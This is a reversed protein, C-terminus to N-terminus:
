TMPRFKKRSFKQDRSGILKPCSFSIADPGFRAREGRTNKQPELGIFWLRFKYFNSDRKYSNSSKRSLFFFFFSNYRKCLNFNISTTKLRHTPEIVVAYVFWLCVKKPEKDMQRKPHIMDPSGQNVNSMFSFSVSHASRSLHHAHCSCWSVYSRPQDLHQKMTTISDFSGNTVETLWQHGGYRVRTLFLSNNEISWM